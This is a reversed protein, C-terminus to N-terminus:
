RVRERTPRESGVIWEWLEAVSPDAAERHDLVAATLFFGVEGFTYRMHQVLNRLLLRDALWAEITASDNGVGASSLLDTLLDAKSVAVALRGKRTAVGMAEINESAQQFVFEPSQSVARFPELRSQERWSLSSWFADISLPDIVFLFSRALRLFRLEQVQESRSYREGAADFVHVLRQPGREPRLYLSYARPLAITTPRTIGAGVISPKAAQYRRRTDADAFTVTAGGRASLETLATVMTLMLRTKGAATAGFVPLILEAATGTREALAARCNPCFAELRYSGLLLLTPMRTGCHCTRRLVGYPGPRVDRHRLRCREGPCDYSPYVVHHYCAPCTIRIGKIRLLVTDIARLLYILAFAIVQLVLVVAVHVTAVGLVVAAGGAIGIVLGVCAVLGIPGTVLPARDGFLNRTIWTGTELTIERCRAYARRLVHRLDELAQGFFYQRWAPEKGREPSTSPPHAIPAAMPSPDAVMVQALVYLYLGVYVVAFGVATIAIAPRGVLRFLGVLVLVYVAVLLLRWGDWRDRTAGM